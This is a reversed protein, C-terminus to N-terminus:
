LADLIVGLRALHASRPHTRAFEDRRKQAEDRRGAKVLAEIALVEREEALAGQPYSRAHEDTLALAREPSALLVRRARSLLALEAVPDASVAAPVAAPLPAIAPAVRTKAHVVKPAPESPAPPPLAETVPEAQEHSVAEIPAAVTVPPALRESTPERSRSLLAAGALTLAALGVLKLKWPAGTVPPSLTAELAALMRAQQAASPGSEAYAAIGERLEAPSEGPEELWRVPERTEM